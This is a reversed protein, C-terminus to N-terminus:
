FTRGGSTPRRFLKGAELLVMSVFTVLLIMLIQDFDPPVTKFASQLFPMYIVALQLAVTLGIAFWLLWNTFLRSSKIFLVESRVSIANALQVFCLTTFVMTQQLSESLGQRVAWFQIFLGAAAMIIGSLIIRKLMGGGFLNEKPPAPPKQMINREEKEAVLALGPLGDTVLNIWLIHTPLLPIIFGFFPACFITLIEALNCSLVYLIFKQINSYIRRGERVAKVITAFNDDLLIMDAAEKSVDTGTKGMAVGIDAQKLSPADNVGDGTMSVFEQRQQMAKVINVKQEPSVRAFVVTQLVKEEFEKESLKNLEAGTVCSVEQGDTMELRRAIAAATLPQDGTIMVTKIGATKCQQIAEMVEERPPDMMAVMGLPSIDKEISADPQEPISHLKKYGFFLVRLGEGAWSRNTELWKEKEVDDIGSFVEAMKGPAGKMFMMAGDEHRHFTSMRMRESDFPITVELPFKQLSQDYTLGKDMAYTVLAVETSDGILEKEDSFQIENNLMMAHWLLEERGEVFQTKEVAMVNKTLTGTKDSCIYTVSGLTEVAPLKRVLANLRVMRKAGRALAITIVAPLSEPLAAVALSLATLFMKYSEEGRWLGVIFVIVCIVLVVFVLVRSFSTLRKQLPTPQHGTELMGAIKGIETSMGTYIVVAKGSGNSIQTGKFVMNTQDGLPVDGDTLADITKDVSHSEGTLAAEETKLANAETVRADAPVVAGAELVIIDGPVLEVADIKSPSNDRIVTTQQAAMQQLMRVSEEANYEQFFGIIANGLIIALIVYGDTQEGVFFSIGAAGILILIMLDRFQNIFITLKSKRRAERLKNEGFKKRRAEVEVVSLGSGATGLIQLVEDATSQYYPKLPQDTM